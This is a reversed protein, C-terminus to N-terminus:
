QTTPAIRKVVVQYDKHLLEYRGSFVHLFADIAVKPEELLDGREHWEYDDLVMIGDRKLLRFALVIDELVDPASHSGDIYAADYVELPLTRLVEQSPGTLTRVKHGDPAMRINREFTVAYTDDFTDICDLTATAHTLINELLWITSRGEYTGVELFRVGSRGRLHGLHREWHPVNDAVWDVTFVYGEDPM